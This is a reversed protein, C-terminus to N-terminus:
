NNQFLYHIPFGLSGEGAPTCILRNTYKTGGINLEVTLMTTNDSEGIDEKWSEGFNGSNLSAKVESLMFQTLKLNNTAIVINKGKKTFLLKRAKGVMFRSKGIQNSARFIVFRNPDMENTGDYEYKCQAIADQYAEYKFPKGEENKFFAYEYITDDELLLTAERATKRDKSALLNNKIVNDWLEFKQKVTEPKLDSGKIYEQNYDINQQPLKLNM